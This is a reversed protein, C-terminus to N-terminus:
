PGEGGASFTFLLLLDQGDKTVTQTQTCGPAPSPISSASLTVTKATLLMRVTLTNRETKISVMLGSLSSFSDEIVREIQEYAAMVLGAPMTGQVKAASAAEIGCLRLTDATEMVAMTLEDLPLLDNKALLEMNSRRKIYASMVTIMRMKEHFAEEPQDLLANIRDIQPRVIRTIRDYIANRTELETKEAKVRSEETLYANRAELKQATEELERNLRQLDSLDVAWELQGGFIPHRMIRISDNAQLPKMERGSVHRLTGQQDLIAASLQALSFLKEYDTNAPILGGQICAELAGILCFTLTEGINWLRKGFLLGSINLPYVLFYVVGVALHAIPLWRFHKGKYRRSKWLMIAFSLIFLGYIFASIGYYLWGNQEHGLDMMVGNPFSKFSFHFDNTIVGLALLVGIAAIWGYFAPLKQEKPRYVCLAVCFCLLPLFTLPIYFSYWLYREALMSDVFFSYRAEQLVIYLLLFATVAILLRQLRLDTVRKRISIGWLLTITGYFLQSFGYTFEVRYLMLHLVGSLLWVAFPWYPIWNEAKRM